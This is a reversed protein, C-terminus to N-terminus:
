NGNQEINVQQADKQRSPKAVSDDRSEFSVNELNVSKTEYRFTQSRLDYRIRDKRKLTM